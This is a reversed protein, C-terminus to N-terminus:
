ADQVDRQSPIPRLLMELEFLMLYFDDRTLLVISQAARKQMPRLEAELKQLMIKDNSHKGPKIQQTAKALFSAQIQSLQLTTAVSEQASVRLKTQM